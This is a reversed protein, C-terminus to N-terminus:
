PSPLPAAPRFGHLRDIAQGSLVVGGARGALGAGQLRKVTWWNCDGAWLYAGYAPYFRGAYGPAQPFPAARQGSPLHVFSRALETLLTHLTAADVDRVFVARAGGSVQPPSTRGDLYAVAETPLFLTAFLNHLRYDSEMYFRRDGWGLELFPAAEEGPPGMRWGPPQEVVISTHYGWDAVYVRYPGPGPVPPLTLGPRADRALAVYLPPGLVLLLIVLAAARGALRLWRRSWPLTAPPLM